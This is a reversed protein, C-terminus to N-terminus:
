FKSQRTAPKIITNAKIHMRFAIVAADADASTVCSLESIM